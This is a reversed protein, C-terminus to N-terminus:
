CNNLLIMFDEGNSITMTFIVYIINAIQEKNRNSNVRSYIHSPHIIFGWLQGIKNNNFFDQFFNYWVNSLLESISLLKMMVSLITQCGQISSVTPLNNFTIFETFLSLPGIGKLQKYLTNFYGKVRCTFAWKLFCSLFELLDSSSQFM